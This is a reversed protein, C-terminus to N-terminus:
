PDAEGSGATETTMDRRLRDSAIGGQTIETTVVRKLSEGDSCNIQMGPRFCTLMAHRSRGACQSADNNAATGGGVGDTSYNNM